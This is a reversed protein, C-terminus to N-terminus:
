KLIHREYKEIEISPKIDIIYDVFEANDKPSIYTEKDKNNYIVLGKRATALQSGSSSTKGVIIKKICNIKIKSYFPGSRIILKRNKIKYSTDFYIWLILLWIFLMVSDFVIIYTVSFDVFLFSEGILIMFLLSFGLIIAKSSTDKASKFKKM